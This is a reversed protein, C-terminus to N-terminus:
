SYRIRVLVHMCAKSMSVEVRTRKIEVTCGERRVQEAVWSALCARDGM